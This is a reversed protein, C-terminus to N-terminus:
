PQKFLPIMGNSMQRVYQLNEPFEELSKKFSMIKIEIQSNDNQGFIDNEVPTELGYFYTPIDKQDLQNKFYDKLEDV